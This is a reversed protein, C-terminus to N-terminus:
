CSCRGFAGLMLNTIYELDVKRWADHSLRIQTSQIQLQWDRPVIFFEFRKNLKDAWFLEPFELGYKDIDGVCPSSILKSAM